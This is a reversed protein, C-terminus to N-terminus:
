TAGSSSITIAVESTNLTISNLTNIKTVVTSTNSDALEGLQTTHILNFLETKNTNDGGGNSCGSTIAIAPIIAFGVAGITGVATLTKILKTKKM